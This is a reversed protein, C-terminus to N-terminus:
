TTAGFRWTRRAILWDVGEPVLVDEYYGSGRWTWAVAGARKAYYACYHTVAVREATVESYLLNSNQHLLLEDPLFGDRRRRELEAVVESRGTAVIGNGFEAVADDTFCAGIGRAFDHDYSWSYRYITQEVQHAIVAQESPTLRSRQPTTDPDHLM